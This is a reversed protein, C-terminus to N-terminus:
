IGVTENQFFFSGPSVSSIFLFKLAATVVFLKWWKDDALIDFGIYVRYTRVFLFFSSPLAVGKRATKLAVERGRM